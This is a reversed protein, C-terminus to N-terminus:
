GNKEVRSEGGGGGTREWKSSQKEDSHPGLRGQSAGRKPSRRATKTVVFNPPCRTRALNPVCLFTLSGWESFQNAGPNEFVDSADSFAKTKSEGSESGECAHECRAPGSCLCRSIDSAM